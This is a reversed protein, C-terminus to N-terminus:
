PYVPILASAFASADGEEADDALLQYDPHSLQRTGRFEGVKGAFLGRRGPRLDRERWSQNFFTLTLRAVGDTVVVELLSGRRARMPKRSVSAIEAMVTVHEDVELRSLETLEGREAYRRPYHRLLDGVTRLDLSDALVKATRDGVIAQLSQGLPGASPTSAAPPSSRSATAM